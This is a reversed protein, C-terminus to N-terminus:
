CGSAKYAKLASNPEIYHIVKGNKDFKLSNNDGTIGCAFPNYVHLKKGEIEVYSHFVPEISEAEGSEYFSIGIRGTIVQGGITLTIKEGTWLTISKVAGSEYFRICSIKGTIEHNGVQVTMKKALQKEDEESWYASIQGYLPFIRHIKGSKYFTVLEAELQGISTSIQQIGELYISRVEGSEHFALAERHKSRHDPESYRPIYTNSGVIITNKDHFRCSEVCHNKGYQVSEVGVLQRIDIKESTKELVHNGASNM